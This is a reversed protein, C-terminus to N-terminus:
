RLGVMGLIGHADDKKEIGKIIADYKKTRQVSQQFLQMKVETAEVGKGESIAHEVYKSVTDTLAKFKEDSQTRTETDRMSFGDTISVKMSIGGAADGGFIKKNSCTLEPMGGNNSVDLLCEGCQIRTYEGIMRCEGATNFPVRVKDIQAGNVKVIKEILDEWDDYGWRSVLGIGGGVQQRVWIGTKALLQMNALVKDKHIYSDANERAQATKQLTSITHDYTYFEDHTKVTLLDGINMTYAPNSRNLPAYFLPPLPMEQALSSSRSKELAKALDKRTSERIGTQKDKSTRNGKSDRVDKSKKKTQGKQFSDQTTSGDTVSASTNQSPSGAAIVQQALLLAMLAVAATQKRIM